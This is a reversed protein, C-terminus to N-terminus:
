KLYEKRIEELEKILMASQNRIHAHSKKLEEMFQFLDKINIYYEDVEKIKIQQIRIKL